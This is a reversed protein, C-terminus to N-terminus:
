GASITATGELRVTAPLTGPDGKDGKDGKVGPAGDKGPVGQPGRPGEKGASLKQIMLSDVYYLTYKDLHEGNATTSSNAAKCAAKLAAVTKPGYDEDVEGSYYGLNKLRVQLAGVAEGSDGKSCFLDEVGGTRGKGVAPWGAANEDDAAWGSLHVHNTHQDSGNYKRKTWGTSRSWIYGNWIIYYLRARAAPDALLRAVLADAQAKSFAKGLMVDVARHEPVTDADQLEAKVGSTDDENHGSVGAAHAADGKGYVTVGPYEAQVAVTFAQM